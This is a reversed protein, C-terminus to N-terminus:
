PSYILSWGWTMAYRQRVSATLHRIKTHRIIPFARKPLLSCAWGLNCSDPAVYVPQPYTIPCGVMGSHSCTRTHHCRQIREQPALEQLPTSRSCQARSINVNAICAWEWWVDSKIQSCSLKRWKDLNNDIWASDWIAIYIGHSYEWLQYSGCPFVLSAIMCLKSTQERLSQFDLSLYM